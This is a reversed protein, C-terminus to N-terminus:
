VQFITYIISTSLYATTSVIIPLMNQNQIQKYQKNTNLSLTGTLMKETMDPRFWSKM